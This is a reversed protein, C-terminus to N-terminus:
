ASCATPTNPMIPVFDKQPTYSLKAHLSPALTQTESSALLLTYGDPAASAVFRAGITGGAGSKNEVIVPVSMRHSLEQALVRAASDTVGGVAWPVVIKIPKSPYVQALASNALVCFAWVALGNM